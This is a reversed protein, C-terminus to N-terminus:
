LHQQQVSITTCHRYHYNENKLEKQHNDSSLFIFGFLKSLKVNEEPLGKKNIRFFKKKIIIDEKEKELCPSRM